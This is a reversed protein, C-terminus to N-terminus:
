ASGNFREKAKVLSVITKNLPAETGVEKAVIPVMGNIAEIESKRGALYDLLMSPRADPIKSGFATIYAAGDDFSFHIGKKQGAAFAELGCGLAVTWAEEDSMVEGVTRELVTCTGSFTVNCIFKEWILQNIDPFCQVNFGSSAWLDSVKQLRESTGGKMEGLRILEMGNHHVHGPGRMSAGFGGAVGIMIRSEDVHQAIREAAGLGNQITLIPTEAGLLPGLGSAAQAVNAAKTAVVVLDCHGVTNFDTAANIAVVKDGSAGEVRLGHTAIADVHEQWVDVAWVDHGAAGMLGAYVSGMAGAGVVAVKM